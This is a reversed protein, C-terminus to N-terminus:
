RANTRLDYYTYACWGALAGYGFNIVGSGRATLVLGLGLLASVAGAGIGAVAAALYASM